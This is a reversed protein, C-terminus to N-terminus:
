SPVPNGTYVPQQGAGYPAGFMPQGTVVPAGVAVAPNVDVQIWYSGHVQAACCGVALLVPPEAARRAPPRAVIGAAGAPVHTCAGWAHAHVGPQMVLGLCCSSRVHARNHTRAHMHETHTRVRTRAHLAVTHACVHMCPLWSGNPAARRGGLGCPCPRVQQLSLAMGGHAFYPRNRALVGEVAAFWPGYDGGDAQFCRDSRGALWACGDNRTM